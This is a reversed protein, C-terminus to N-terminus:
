QIIRVVGDKLSTTTFDRILIDKVEVGTWNGVEDNVHKIIKERLGHRNSREAAWAVLELIEDWTHYHLYEQVYGQISSYITEKDEVELILKKVDKIVWVITYSLTLQTSDKLTISQNASELGDPKINEAFTEEIGLPWM